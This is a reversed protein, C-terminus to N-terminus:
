LYSVSAEAARLDVVRQRELDIKNGCIAIVVNTGVQERLEKVWKKVKTFSDQDTIDYVM